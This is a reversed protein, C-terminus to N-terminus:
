NFKNLFLFSFIKIMGFSIQECICYTPEDPDIPTEDYLNSPSNTSHDKISSSRNRKIEKNSNKNVGRKVGRKHNTSSNVNNTNQSNNHSSNLDIEKTFEQKNTTTTLNRRSSARKSNSASSNHNNVNSQTTQVTILSEKQNFNLESNSNEQNGNLSDEDNSKQSSSNSNSKSNTQNLNSQSSLNRYDLDLQRSKSDLHELISQVIILKEDAVEQIQLLTNKVSNLAKEKRLILKEDEDILLDLQNFDENIKEEKNIKDIEEKNIKDTEEKKENQNDKKKLNRNVESNEVLVKLMLELKDNLKNFLHNKEHLRTIQRIIENPSNEILDLYNEIYQAILSM